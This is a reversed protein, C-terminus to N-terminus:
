ITWATERATLIEISRRGPFKLFIYGSLRPLDPITFRLEGM